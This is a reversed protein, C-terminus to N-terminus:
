SALDNGADTEDVEVSQREGLTFTDAPATNSLRPRGILYDWARSFGDARWLWSHQGAASSEYIFGETQLFTKIELWKARGRGNAWNREPSIYRTNSDQMFREFDEITIDTDEICVRVVHRYRIRLTPFSIGLAGWQDRDLKMLMEGVDIVSRYFTARQHSAHYIGLLVTLTFSMGALAIFGLMVWGNMSFLGIVIISGVTVFMMTVVHWFKVNNDEM